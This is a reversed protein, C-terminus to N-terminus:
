GGLCRTLVANTETDGSELREGHAFDGIRESQANAM